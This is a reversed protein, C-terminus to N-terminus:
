RDWLEPVRGAKGESDPIALAETVIRAPDRGVITNTGQTMTVLRETNERLALGPRDQAQRLIPWGWWRAGGAVALPSVFSGRRIAGAGRGGAGPAIPKLLLVGGM